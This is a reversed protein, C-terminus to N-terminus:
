SPARMRPVCPCRCVAGTSISLPGCHNPCTRPPWARLNVMSMSFLSTAPRVCLALAIMKTLLKSIQEMISWCDDAMRACMLVPCLGPVMGCPRPAPSWNWIKPLSPHSALRLAAAGPTIRLNLNNISASIIIISIVNCIVKKEIVVEFLVDDVLPEASFVLAHSFNRMSRQASRNGNGLTISRGCRTHFSQMASAAASGAM